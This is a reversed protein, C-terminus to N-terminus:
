SSVDSTIRLWPMFARSSECCSAGHAPHADWSSVFYRYYQGIEFQDSAVGFIALHLPAENEM